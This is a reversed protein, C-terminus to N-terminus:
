RSANAGQGGLQRQLARARDLHQQITQRTATLHARIPAERAVGMSASVMQLAMQHDIVMRDIYARAYAQGDLAALQQQAQQSMATLRQVSGSGSPAGGATTLLRQTQQLHPAHHAEMMRAYDLVAGTVKKARAQQALAVEHQDVLAV